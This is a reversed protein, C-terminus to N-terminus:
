KGTGNMAKKIFLAKIFRLLRQVGWTKIHDWIFGDLITLSQADRSTLDKVSSMPNM